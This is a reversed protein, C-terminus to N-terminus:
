KGEAPKATRGAIAPEPSEGWVLALAAEVKAQMRTILESNHDVLQREADIEDIIARQITIDPVPIELAKLEPTNIKLTGHAASKRLGFSNNAAAQLATRLFSPLIERNPRLARIDQNFAVPRKVEAVPVGNALGMGRVLILVSGAPAMSTSSEEVARASIHLEADYLENVKMDKGSVWPVDGCWYDDNKKSPTGGSSLECVEEVKRSPWEPNIPIHPRYSDLVAHAGEIVRQYGEVESVLARQVSLPPLPIAFQALDEPKMGVNAAGTMLKAIDERRNDLAHYLYRIDLEDPDIPQLAVLLNALAYKGEAYHIRHVAAKGHGLSSILPVCVAPEEFQYDDSTKSDAATLVLRYPGPPTKTSSFKGKTLKCVEGIAVFRGEGLEALPKYQSASLKYDNAAVEERTAMWSIPTLEKGAQYAHFDRKVAPLDNDDTPTRKTGLSMGIHNVECFLINSNRKAETKDLLLISTKVGTYPMFIGSPLSIVAVLSQEVLMKRLQKYANQSQFIIGEPVIIGARGTPSLHEHIYDVFLVESRKSQVSFRQHPKIGGKSREL